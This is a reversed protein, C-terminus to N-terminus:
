TTTQLKDPQSLRFPRYEAGAWELEAHGSFELMNLRVGHVVVGLAAMALNIGHGLLLVLVALLVRGPNGFGIGAAIENFSAAVALTAMGVAFLRIYSILDAFCNMLKLPLRGVGVGFGKLVNRQPDAFFVALAVGGGLLIYAFGPIPTELVLFRVVFFSGWVILTWGVQCLALLSNRRRWAILLHAVSLHSAGILFCVLMVTEQNATSFANLGPIVVARFGPAEALAAIGFWNGTVAGWVLTASGLLTLLRLAAGPPDGFHRWTLTGLIVLLGYGADGILIAFFLTLYILFWLSVDVERYGPRSSILDYVPDASDVWKRNTLLTPPEDHADLERVLVAWGASEATQRLKDLLPEPCYGEIHAVPPESHVAALASAFERRDRLRQAEARLADLYGALALLQQDVEARESRALELRARFEASSETPLAVEPLDPTEDGVRSLVAVWWEAGRQHIVSCSHAEALKAFERVPCRYVRLTLGQRVLEEADLLEFDGLPALRDIEHELNEIRGDTEERRRALDLTPDVVEAVDSEEARTESELEALVRIAAELRDLEADDGADLRERLHLVGLEGLRGLAEDRKSDLMVVAVAKMPVIM